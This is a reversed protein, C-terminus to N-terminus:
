SASGKVAPKNAAVPASGEEEDGEEGEDDDEEGEEGDAEGEDEEEDV